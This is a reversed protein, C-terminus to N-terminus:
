HSMLLLFFLLVSVHLLTRGEEDVDDPSAKGSDFYELMLNQAVELKHDRKQKKIPDQYKSTIEKLTYYDYLQEFFSQLPHRQIRAETRLSLGISPFGASWCIQLAGEMM